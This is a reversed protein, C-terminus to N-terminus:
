QRSKYHLHRRSLSYVDRSPSESVVSSGPQQLLAGRYAAVTVRGARRAADDMKSSLPALLIWEDRIQLGYQQSAHRLYGLLRPIDEDFIRLETNSERRGAALFGLSTHGREALHKVAIQAETEVDVAVCDAVMDKVWYDVVVVPVGESQYMRIYQEDFTGCLIVGGVEKPSPPKYEALPVRVYGRVRRQRVTLGLAHAMQRVGAHIRGYYTDPAAIKTGHIQALLITSSTSFWRSGGYNPSVFTGKGRVRHILGQSELIKLAARVTCRSCGCQVALDREYPLQGDDAFEHAQIRRVLQRALQQYEPETSPGEAPRAQPPHLGM